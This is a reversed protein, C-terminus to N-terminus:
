RLVFAVMSAFGILGVVVMAIFLVRMMGGSLWSVACHCVFRVPKVSALGPRGSRRGVTRGRATANPVDPQPRRNLRHRDAAQPKGVAGWFAM